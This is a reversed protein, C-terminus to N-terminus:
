LTKVRSPTIAMPGGKRQLVFDYWYAGLTSMIAYYMSSFYGPPLPAEETMVDAWNAKMSERLALYDATKDTLVADVDWNTVTIMEKRGNVTWVYLIKGAAKCDRRFAEGDAGVLVVFNISFGACEDWFYKRALATSFGIHIRPCDPLLRKAPEIFKPHWLGLILRPPVHHPFRSILNAMLSFLKEPENDVKIDLNFAVHSNETRSMLELTQEFTCIPQPPTKLTRLRDLGNHYPQRKILGTGNTVRELYADHFMVIVNDSSIHVDTEIGEAGDRIAAEFSALTNEPLFASAGRHGFCLPLKRDMTEM